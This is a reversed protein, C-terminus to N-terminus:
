PGKLKQTAWVARHQKVANFFLARRVTACSEPHFQYTIMNKGLLGMLEGREGWLPVSSPDDARFTVSLSNYRQVLLDSRQAGARRLLSKWRTPQHHGSWHIRELYGHKPHASPAVVMGLAQGLLQHGLCIGVIFYQFPHQLWRQLMDTIEPYDKPHGPGPGLIITMPERCTLVSHFHAPGKAVPLVEVKGLGFHQWDSVLNYTYSDRFDILLNARAAWHSPLNSRQPLSDLKSDM